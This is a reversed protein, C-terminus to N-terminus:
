KDLDRLIVASVNWPKTVVLAHLRDTHAPHTQDFDFSHAAQLNTARCWNDFSHHYSSLRGIYFFGLVTHQLKQEDVVMEVARYTVAASLAGELILSQSKTRAFRAENFLLTM